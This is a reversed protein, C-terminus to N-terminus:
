NVYHLTYIQRPLIKAHGGRVPIFLTGLGFFLTLLCVTPRLWLSRNAGIKDIEGILLKDDISFNGITIDSPVGWIKNRSVLEVRAKVLTGAPYVKNGLKVESKTEFEVYDGDDIKQRTTLYKKIGIKVSIANEDSFVVVKKPKFTEKSMVVEQESIDIVPKTYLNKNTNGEAFSDKINSYKFERVPLNKDLTNEVFEDYYNIQSIHTVKNNKPLTKTIFEDDIVCYGPLSLINLCILWVLINKCM